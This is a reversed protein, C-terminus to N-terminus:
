LNTLRECFSVRRRTRRFNRIPACIAAQKCQKTFRPYSRGKNAIDSDLEVAQPPAAFQISDKGFGLLSWLEETVFPMFPHLLRLVSSLVVDMVALASKKRSEDDSFIDSKSAEVFWDCYDSWFFDYLRQAVSSFEYQRYATEVADITENLRALVEIAYISLTLNEVQGELRPM